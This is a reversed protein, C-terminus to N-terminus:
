LTYYLWWYLTDNSYWTCLLSCLKLKRTDLTLKGNTDTHLDGKLQLVTTYVTWMSTTDPTMELFNTVLDFQSNIFM